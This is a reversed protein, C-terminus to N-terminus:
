FEKSCLGGPEEPVLLPRPDIPRGCWWHRLDRVRAIAFHLHPTDPPANGTTGVGGLLQGRRLAIGETLGVAYWDLHAYLLIFRETWDAAYVMLGGNTSKFLKLLRGDTASLVPTGRPAPIDLADHPRSGRMEAFTDPLESGARGQVPIMLGARLVALEAETAAPTAERERAGCPNPPPLSQAGVANLPTAAAPTAPNSVTTGRRPGATLYNATGPCVALGVLLVVLVLMGTQRPHKIGRTMDKSGDWVGYVSLWM